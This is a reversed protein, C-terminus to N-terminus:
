INVSKELNRFFERYHKVAEERAEEGRFDTWVCQCDSCTMVPETVEISVSDPWGYEFTSTVEKETVKSSGCICQHDM